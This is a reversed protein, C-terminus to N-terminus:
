RYCPLDLPEYQGGASLRSDVMVTYEQEGGFASKAVTKYHAKLHDGVVFFNALVSEPSELVVIPVRQHEMRTVTLRQEELTSHWGSLLYVQGGAFGRESFFFLEPLFEGALVRDTPQTCELVYRALPRIGRTGSPAWADIPRMSLQRVTSGLQNMTSEGLHRWTGGIEACSWVTILGLVGAVALRANFRRPVPSTGGHLWQGTLWAALVAMPAAVDPLRAAPSGRVLAVEILACLVLLGGIVALEEKSGTHRRWRVALCVVGLIPLVISTYYLWALANGVSFLGRNVRARLLPVLRVFKESWSEDVTVRQNERDIGSTDVILPDNILARVNNSSKDILVYSWTPEEEERGDTLGYKAARESRADPAAEPSWRVNIRPEFAPEVVLLPETRDLAFSLRDIQLLVLEGVHSQSGVIYNGLGVTLQVFVLFPLLMLATFGGFRLCSVLARRPEQLALLLLMASLSVGLYIGHDHRFLFAIATVLSLVLLRTTTPQRAYRWGCLIALVFLFVKPYSYLRPATAMAALAAVLGIALSGSFRAALVFTLAGGVATLGATLLVEGWLTRGSLVLAAASAYSQLIAGPEFFDRVPVEGLIIQQARSLHVFHDNILELTVVRYVFVSSFVAIALAPMLYRRHRNMSGIMSADM